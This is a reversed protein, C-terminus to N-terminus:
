LRGLGLQVAAEQATLNIFASFGVECDRENNRRLKLAEVEVNAISSMLEPAFIGGPEAKSTSALVPGFVYKRQQSEVSTGAAYSAKDSSHRSLLRGIRPFEKGKSMGLLSAVEAGIARLLRALQDELGDDELWVELIRAADLRVDSQEAGDLISVLLRWARDAKWLSALEARITNEDTNRFQRLDGCQTLLRSIHAIPRYKSTTTEGHRLIRVLVRREESRKAADSREKAEIRSSLRAGRYIARLLGRIQM